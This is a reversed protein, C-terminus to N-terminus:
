VIEIKCKVTFNFTTEVIMEALLYHEQNIEFSSRVGIDGNQFYVLYWEVGARKKLPCPISPKKCKTKWYVIENYHNDSERNKLTEIIEIMSNNPLNGCLSQGYSSTIKVIFKMLQLFPAIENKMADDMNHNEDNSENKVITQNEAWKYVAQFVESPKIDINPEMKVFQKNIFENANLFRDSKVFNRFNKLLFDQISKKMKLLSYKSSTEILQFINGMNLTIKSLYEDCYKKFSNVQYFEAIDIMTFINEDSLSCEGSYLFKLFEKFNDYKYSEIKIADNKSIWRDSLM